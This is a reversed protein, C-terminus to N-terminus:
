EELLTVAYAAMGEGNGTFGLGDTTTAKVMVQEDEIRLAVAIVHRMEDVYTQIKPEQAVLVSDINKIALGKSAVMRGVHELLHISSIDKYAADGTPFQQGIDKLGAAGLLADMIAHVLVDADSYGELGKNYPVNVGGLILPRGKVLAHADFGIGTRM